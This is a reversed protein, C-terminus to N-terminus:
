RTPDPRTWRAASLLLLNPADPPQDTATTMEMAAGFVRIGFDM